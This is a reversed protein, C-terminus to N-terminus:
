EHKKKGEIKYKYHSTTAAVCVFFFIIESQEPAERGINVDSRSFATLRGGSEVTSDSVGNKEAHPTVSAMRTMRLPSFHSIKGEKTIVVARIQIYRYPEPPKKKKRALVHNALRIVMLFTNEPPM